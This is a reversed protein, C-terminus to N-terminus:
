PFKHSTLDHQIPVTLTLCTVLDKQPIRNPGWVRIHRKTTLHPQNILYNKKTHTVLLNNWCLIAMNGTYSIRNHLYSLRQVRQCGCHSKKYEFVQEVCKHDFKPNHGSALSWINANHHLWRLMDNSQSSVQKDLLKDLITDVFFSEIKQVFLWYHPLHECTM